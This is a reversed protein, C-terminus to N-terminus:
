IPVEQLTFHRLRPEFISNWMDDMIDVGEGARYQFGDIEEESIKYHDILNIGRWFQFELIGMMPNRLVWVVFGKYFFPDTKMWQPVSLELSAGCQTCTGDPRTRKLKDEQGCYLCKM